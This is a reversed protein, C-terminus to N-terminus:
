LQGRMEDDSKECMRMTNFSIDLERTKRMKASTIRIVPITRRESLEAKFLKQSALWLPIPSAVAHTHEGKHSTFSRSLRTGKLPTMQQLKRHTREHTAFTAKQFICFCFAFM